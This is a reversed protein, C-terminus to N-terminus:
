HPDPPICAQGSVTEQYSNIVTSSLACKTNVLKAAYNVAHVNVSHLKSALKKHRLILVWSM